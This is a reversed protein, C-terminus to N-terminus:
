HASIAKNYTESLDHRHAQTAQLTLASPVPRMPRTGITRLKGPKHAYAALPWTAVVGGLLTIFQRRKM